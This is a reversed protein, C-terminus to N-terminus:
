QQSLGLWKSAACQQRLVM